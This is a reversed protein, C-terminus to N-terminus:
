WIQVHCFGSFGQFISTKVKSLNQDFFYYIAAESDNQDLNRNNQEINGKIKPLDILRLKDLQLKLCEIKLRQEEKCSYLCCTLLKHFFSIEEEWISIQHNISYVLSKPTKYVTFVRPNHQVLTMNEMINIKHKKGIM